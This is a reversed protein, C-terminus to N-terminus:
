EAAFEGPCGTVRFFVCDLSHTGICANKGEGGPIPKGTKPWNEASKFYSFGTQSDSFYLDGCCGSVNM